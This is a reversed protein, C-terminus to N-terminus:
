PRPERQPLGARHPRGSDDHALMSREASTLYAMVAVTLKTKDPQAIKAATAALKGIQATTLGSKALAAV